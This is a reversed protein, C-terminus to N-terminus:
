RRKIKTILFVLPFLLCHLFPSDSYLYRCPNGQPKVEKLLRLWGWLDGRKNPESFRRVFRIKIHDNELLALSKPASKKELVIIAQWDPTSIQSKLIEELKRIYIENGENSPLAQIFRIRVSPNQFLEQTKQILHVERSKMDDFGKPSADDTTKDIFEERVHLAIQSQSFQYLGHKLKTLDGNMILDMNELCKLFLAVDDIQAYSFAFSGASKDYKRIKFDPECNLGLSILAIDEKM